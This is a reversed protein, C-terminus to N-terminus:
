KLDPIASGKPDKLVIKDLVMQIGRTDLSDLFTTEIFRVPGFSRLNTLQTRKLETKRFSFLGDNRSDTFDLKGEMRAFDFSVGEQFRCLTFDANAHFIANGFQAKEMFRSSQFLSVGYFNSTMFNSEKMFLCNQFLLDADFVCERFGVPGLFTANQFNAGNKFRCKGFNLQGLMQTMRGSVLGEFTCNRFIATGMFPSFGDKLPMFYLEGEFSCGDFELQSAPRGKKSLLLASLDTAKFSKDKFTLVPGEEDSSSGANTQNSSICAQGQILLFLCFVLTKINTSM